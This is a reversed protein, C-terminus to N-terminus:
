MVPFTEYVFVQGGDRLVPCDKAIEAAVAHSYAKIISYGGLSVAPPSDSVAGESSVVKVAPTFPNGGDVLADGIREFWATWAQMVAARQAEDPPMTEGGSTDTYLLIFTGM